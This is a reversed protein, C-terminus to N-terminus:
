IEEKELVDYIKDVFADITKNSDDTTNEEQVPNLKNGIQLFYYKAILM